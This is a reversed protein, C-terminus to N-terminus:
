SKPNTPTSPKLSQNLAGQKNGLTSTNSTPNGPDAGAAGAKMFGTGSLPKFGAPTVKGTLMISAEDDAYFGLSLLELIRSQKMARFAELEATPRLDIPEYAFEVYVDLGFLRLALTLARSYIENLKYQVAGACSKTFLMSETSAVNQSAGDQGLISPLTKAGSAMRSRNLKTLIEEEGAPSANGHNIYDIEIFDFHVLADEPKLENIKNQVDAIVADTYEKLATPDIMINEPITARFKEENIKVDLRPHLARKVLRRLDNFFDLDALVPQIAPELPSEAYPELLDQDLATYFFTPIDLNIVDSGIRQQPRLWRDDALFEIQTVPVPKLARPLRSKDLVLELACAGQEMLQKSLSESLSRTSWIGSFGDNYDQVIDFRVMLQQLLLTADRNFTGDMDRAVGTYSGTVATRTYAFVAASLDPTVKALNRIVERTSTGARLALADSNALARDTRPLVSETSSRTNKIYGPISQQNPKVKPQVVPPLQTAAGIQAGETGGAFWRRLADLM